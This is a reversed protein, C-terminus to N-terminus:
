CPLMLRRYSSIFFGYRERRLKINRTSVIQRSLLPQVVKFSGNMQDVVFDSIFPPGKSCQVFLYRSTALICLNNRVTRNAEVQTRERSDIIRGSCSFFRGPINLM